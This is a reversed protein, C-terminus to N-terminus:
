IYPTVCMKTKTQKKRLIKNFTLEFKLSESIEM